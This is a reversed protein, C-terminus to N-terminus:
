KKNVVKYTNSEKDWTFHCDCWTCKVVSMFAAYESKWSDNNCGPCTATRHCNIM